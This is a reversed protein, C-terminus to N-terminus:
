LLIHFLMNQANYAVSYKCMWLANLTAGAVASPVTPLFLVIVILSIKSWSMNVYPLGVGSAIRWFFRLKRAGCLGYSGGSIRKM